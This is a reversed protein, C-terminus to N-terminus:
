PIEGSKVRELQDELQEKLSLASDNEVAKTLRRQHQRIQFGTVLKCLECLILTAVPGLAAVGWGWLGIKTGDLELIKDSFFPVLVATYLALQALIIACHMANNGCLNQWIPKDFSRSTYSRVNECLVLSIFAVTRAYTLGAVDNANSLDLDDVLVQGNCFHILSFIYVVIVVVSLVAANMVMNFWMWGLVVPESKPRPRHKLIDKEAPEMGLSISPPLDTVLILFLIQVPTRMV